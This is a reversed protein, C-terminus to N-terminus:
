SQYKIIINKMAENFAESAAVLLVSLDGVEETNLNQATKEKLEAITMNIFYSLDSPVRRPDNPDLDMGRMGFALATPNQKLVKEAFKRKELLTNISKQIEKKSNKM